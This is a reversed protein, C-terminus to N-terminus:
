ITIILIVLHIDLFFCKNMVHHWAMDAFRPVSGFNRVSRSSKAVVWCPLSTETGYEQETLAFDTM